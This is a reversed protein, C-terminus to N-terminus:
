SKQFGTEVVEGTSQVTYLVDIKVFDLSFNENPSDDQDSGGVSYSSVLVDALTIKLFEFGGGPGGPRRCTLKATRLHIGTACALILNPSAKSVAASFSMDQLVAKGTGGGSGGISGTNALGWSFASVEIEGPHIRDTSEGDIGDLKLFM